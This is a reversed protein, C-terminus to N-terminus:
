VFTESVPLVLRHSNIRQSHFSNYQPPGFTSRSEQLFTGEVSAAGEEEVGQEEQLHKYAQYRRRVMCTMGFILFLVLNGVVLVGMVSRRLMDKRAKLHLQIFNTRTESRILLDIYYLHWLLCIDSSEVAFHKRLLSIKKIPTQPVGIHDVLGTKLFRCNACLPNCQIAIVHDWSTTINCLFETNASM